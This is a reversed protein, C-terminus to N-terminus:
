QLVVVSINIDATDLTHLRTHQLRQLFRGSGAAHLPGVQMGREPFFPTQMQLRISRTPMATRDALDYTATPRKAVDEICRKIHLAEYATDQLRHSKHWSKAAIGNTNLRRKM